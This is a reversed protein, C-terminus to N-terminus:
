VDKVLGRMNGNRVKFHPHNELWKYFELPNKDPCRNTRRLMSLIFMPIRAVRKGDGWRSHRETDNRERLNAELIAEVDMATEFYVKKTVDDCHMFTKAGDVPNVSLLASHLM